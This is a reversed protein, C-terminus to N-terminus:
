IKIRGGGYLNGFDQSEGTKQFNTRYKLNKENKKQGFILFVGSKVGKRIDGTSREFIGGRKECIDTGKRIYANVKAWIRRNRRMYGNM